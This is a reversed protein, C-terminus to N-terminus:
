MRRLEMAIVNLAAWVLCVAMTAAQHRWATICVCALSCALSFLTIALDRARRARRSEDLSTIRLAEARLEELTPLSRGVITGATIGSADPVKASGLDDDLTRFDPSGDPLRRGRPM